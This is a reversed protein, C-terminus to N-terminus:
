NVRKVLKVQRRRDGQIMEVVYVGPRYNKGIMLTSGESVNNFVEIVRGAMDLVRLQIRETTRDSSVQVNFHNSSPNPFVRLGFVQIEKEAKAETLQSSRGSQVIPPAVSTVTYPDISAAKNEYRSDGGYYATITHEGAPLLTTTFNVVGNSPLSATGLNVISTGNVRFLSVSGTPKVTGSAPLVTATFTVPAGAVSVNGTNSVLSMTVAGTGPKFAGSNHVKINGGGLQQLRTQVGTWNSTFWIGGNKNYVTIAIQDDKGPEGFDVMSVQLTAGGDVPLPNLPDTIDQISAQGNFVATAPANNTAGVVTLSNMRNGKVQYVKNDLGRVITNITGQLNTRSKNYKVNFGFNNRSGPRPDILGSASDKLVIYGGGTIFDDLPRSVTVVVNDESSCRTYYGEVITMITFNRSDAPGTDATWEFTVVGTKPDNPNVLGPTLRPSEFGTEVVRFYVKANRIDGPNGDMPAMAATIDQITASLLVKATTTSVSSTSTFLSGIYTVRADEPRITLRTTPDSIIYDADKSTYVATVLKEGVPTSTRPNLEGTIPFNLPNPVPTPIPELLATTLEAVGSSNVKATGMLQNGIKFRVSDVANGKDGCEYPTITARFTVLDSYQQTAPTVTVSTRTTINNVTVTQQFTNSNGNVDIVTWTVLTQGLPFTAPADNSVGNVAVGCNDSAVPTGLNVTAFCEGEDTDVSKAVLGSLTPLTNDVVRTTADSTSCASWTGLAITGCAAATVYRVRIKYGACNDATPPVNAGWTGGDNFSYEINFGAVSAPPTVTIAGAGSNVTPAAPQAPFIVAHGANSEICAAPALANAANTGCANELVYRSKMAYCGPTTSASTNTTSWTTGGDFSYEAVFSNVATLAPITLAANCTNSVVPAAPKAPFIVAYVADSEMCAEPALANATNGGCASTLVYRAKISYCGPTTPVSPATSWTGGNISYQVTFGSALTVSPLTFAAACTNAPATLEPKAPFIVVNVANSEACAAPAASGDATFVYRAKVTHCGIATTGPNASWSGSNIKYEVSFGAVASVTPLIFEAACTNAPATITPATPYIVVPLSASGGTFCSSSPTVEITAAGPTATGFNVEISTTGQGSSITAHPPVTWTYTTAGPVASISYTRTNDGYCVKNSGSISGANEVVVGVTWSVMVVSSTTCGSGTATRFTRIDVSTVPAATSIATGSTYTQWSGGNTRYQLVDTITGAGGSGATFIASVSTGACVGAQDINRTLTGSQPVANITVTASSSMMIGCGTGNAFVAKVKYEGAATRLGFSIAHGTGPVTAVMTSDTASTFHYLHYNVGNQSDDLGIVVGDGGTCYAGGGTVTFNDPAPNIVFGVNNYKFQSGLLPLGNPETRSANIRIDYHNAANRIIPLKVVMTYYTYEVGNSADVSTGDNTLSVTTLLNPSGPPFNGGGNSLEARFVNAPQYTGTTKFSIILEDGACFTGTNIGTIIQETLIVKVALRNVSECGGITQSAYYTNGTVLATAPLLATGGSSAAYWKIHSGTPVLNAVTSPGVFSQTASGTPAPAYPNITADEDNCDDVSSKTAIWGTPYANGFCKVEGNGITYTDGDGDRYLTASQWVSADNDDCDTGSTSTKYGAPTDLGYCVSETGNDYGDNDSDIYFTATRWKTNDGPACDGEATVTRTYGTGPSTCSQTSSTYYGDGDADLYWTTNPHIEEDADDCDLSNTVGGCPVKVASGFSDGDLDEYRERTDDCDLSNTVGGCAVKVTSGFGDGDLDQYMVLDDNCDDNNTVYGEPLSCAQTTAGPNGFGDGDADRYYTNKVGEDIQGDCDNDIGDCIETAAPNIAAGGELPDDNCDTGLSTETVGAPLEEGYCLSYSDGVTYGDGDADTYVTASRWKSGDLPECDFGDLVGDNDDDTDCADGMLDDDHDAQDANAVNICNDNENNVGDGDVDPDCGDGIQDGDIDGQDPNPVTPCNDNANLVGDGDIDADCADGLGDNDLDAQGPNAVSPCNDTANPVGDGDMDADCADGIGDEDLDAQSANAVLPCNDSGDPVGDNDDDPDCADGMADGDTNVQDANATLPCNDNIDLVGDNDDDPDVCDKIGDGDTDTFGEDVLGDCDNDVGDCVETAAPNIAAGGNLPDDNCDSGLSNIRVGSSLAAGYCLTYSDGVTYGDGDADTYVTATRWKTNDLPACDDGDVVGDGDSDIIPTFSVDDWSLNDSNSGGPHIFRIFIYQGSAISLNGVTQSLTTGLTINTTADSFSLNALSNALAGHLPTVSSSSNQWSVSVTPSASGNRWVKAKFSITFGLVPVGSNNRLIWTANGNTANGSGLFSMNENGYWGGDNNTTQNTGRWANGSPGSGEVAWNSPTSTGLFGNFNETVATSNLISVQAFSFKAAFTLLIVAVTMLLLRLKSQM